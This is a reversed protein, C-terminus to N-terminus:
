RDWTGLEKRKRFARFADRPLDFQNSFFAITKKDLSPANLLVDRIVAEGYYQWVAHVDPRDGRDMVRPIIFARHSQPDLSAADVDWFLHPALQRIIAASHMPLAYRQLPVSTSHRRQHISESARSHQEKM